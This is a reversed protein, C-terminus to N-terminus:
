KLTVLEIYNERVPYYYGEYFFKWRIYDDVLHWIALGLWVNLILGSILEIIMVAPLGILVQQYIILSGKQNLLEVFLGCLGGVPLM